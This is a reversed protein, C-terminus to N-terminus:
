LSRQEEITEFAEIVDGVKMDDYNEFAMGCEFNTAVEKVDDKFRKLTKLKGEHIVVNDRLLRVGSGRKIVGDTVFCGSVKGYKTLNFVERIEANGLYQERVTPNLMGGLVAKMDDVLDYIVSYYRIDVGEKEAALKAPASARVNFALILAKSAAALSVDSENIGGVATHLVKAAVEETAVKDLSGVIAEASGQVDAKIIIPLEKIGSDSARQFLDELSGRKESAARLDRTRKERYEAIDRATKEDDVVAFEDGAQPAKDLGLVEVPVSPKAKSYSEGHADRMARVRGWAEGAVVINGISLTGRQVLLTSVVGRGKEVEAEIVVGAAKRNPNAKLEMMESLLLLTELLKDLNLKQKASVDVVMVDGGLEEAVLDHQLLENRVRQPNAEPKDIKNVAVVIPVGAAKAHNIAEVTQAMIGDDAAVVLVVIDTVKAGRSRMATFAEHGPTDVFTVSNGGATQVQYAGIHQTIGGAEGAVVDAERIADLLSTKGHDVHGMITVIPSRPELTEPTDEEEELLVNEVDAETVRRVTHGMEEAVLEATDADITENATVMMDMKMLTKIVDAARESMRNALEQVTIVEPLRVERYQKERQQDGGSARKAKARARKISALSRFKEDQQELAQTITLKNQRRKNDEGKKPRKPAEQEREKVSTALREVTKIPKVLGGETPDVSAAALQDQTPEVVQGENKKAAKKAEEKAREAQKAAREKNEEAEKQERELRVKDDQEKQKAEKDARIKEEEAARKLVEMRVARESPTLGSLSAEIEAQRQEETKVQDQQTATASADKGDTTFSRRKKRVEVTVSRNSSRSAGGGAPLKLKSGLTLTSKKKDQGSDQSM